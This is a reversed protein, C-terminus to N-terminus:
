ARKLSQRIMEARLQRVYLEDFKLRREAAQREADSDPFHISRIAPSLSILNARARIEGPLWEEVQDALVVAQSMLFRIQKQTIGTTLSYLPVIRATHTPTNDTNVKEYSPGILEFGLRDRTVRGSLYVEDGAKLVKSIFPQGFWVARLRGDGEAVVAETVLKRKVPSRKTAILEIRGRFTIQEGDKLESVGAVRRYDEYRFPFYFLLDEVTDIGLHKLRAALVQGVRNLETVKATLRM